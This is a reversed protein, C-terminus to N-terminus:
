GERNESEIRRNPSAKDILVEIRNRGENKAKYMTEDVLAVLQEPKDYNAPFATLVGMSVTVYPSIMSDKHPIALINIAKAIRKALAKAGISDTGPLIVIFEEGGYRAAIDTSRSAVMRLVKGIQRLCDDGAIHGYADNYRKFYDVDLMILSLKSHSRKLRFFEKEMMEDFYRRNTLGTLSDTISNLQADNKETEMQELLQQIKREALKRQTIDRIVFVMKSPKGNLDRILGSNVEIHFLSQNKRVAHYENSKLEEGEQFLLAINRKAQEREEPVIFDSINMELYEKSDDTHGFMKKEAPSVMLIHGELDTITIDDPSANLVSRYLEESERLAEELEIHLSIDHITTIIHSVGHVLIIRASIVGTFKSKDKKRFLFERNVCIGKKDLEQLYITRDNLDAWLRLQVATKGIAELKTHGTLLEFGANVDLIVSDKVRIILAADPITNFILQMKEKEMCNETNLRQNLMIIFGFTWLIGAIIPVVFSIIVIISQDNYSQMPPLIVALVARLALLIGYSGFVIAAFNISIANQGGTRDFLRLASILTIVAMATYVIITRISIDNQVFMFLYYLILFVIYFIGLLLKNSSKEIFKMIGIYLIVQGFVVLPNALMAFIAMAPVVVLPMFLVGITMFLSGIVWWKVGDYSRNLRYQVFLVIAQVLFMLCQIITLTQIVSIM